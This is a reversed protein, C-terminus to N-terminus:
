PASPLLASILTGKIGPAPPWSWGDAPRRRSVNGSAVCVLELPQGRVKGLTGCDAPNAACTGNSVINGNLSGENDYLGLKCRLGGLDAQADKESNVYTGVSDGLESSAVSCFRCM